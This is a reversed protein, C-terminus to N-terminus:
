QDRASFRRLAIGSMLALAALLMASNTGHPKDDSDIKPQAPTAQASPGGDHPAARAATILDVTPRVAAPKAPAHRVRATDPTTAKDHAAALPAPAAPADHATAALSCASLFFAIVSSRM